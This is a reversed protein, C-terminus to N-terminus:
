KLEKKYILKYPCYEDQENEFEIEEKSMLVLDKLRERLEDLSKAKQHLIQMSNLDYFGVSANEDYLAQYFALQYSNSPVKGSKYDIILNGEKSSDIRDITGKLKISDAGLKLINNLELETHAVYFGKSFHEKENKAFQIFKLKFVELDLESINYKQYEKDLLNTFVKIDFDNNAYNKYYIELMKHIFNGQNKAKSEESLVRPEALNLIYRYYYTRKQNELLNFRSFSLP